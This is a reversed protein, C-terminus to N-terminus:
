TENERFVYTEKAFSVQLLSSIRCLGIIAHKQHTLSVGFSACSHSRPNHLNTPYKWTQHRTSGGFVPRKFVYTEKAFSVYTKAFSVQTKRSGGDQADKPSVLLHALHSSFCLDRKCFLGIFSVINQLSRHNHCWFIRLILLHALIDDRITYMQPDLRTRGLFMPRKQLLSRYFLRYEASVWSSM